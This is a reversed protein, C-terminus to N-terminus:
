EPIGDDGFWEVPLFAFDRAGYEPRPLTFRSPTAPSFAPPRTGDSADSSDADANHDSDASDDAGDAEDEDEDTTSDEGGDSTSDVGEDSVNDEEDSDDEEQSYANDDSHDADARPSDPVAVRNVWANDTNPMRHNGGDDSHTAYWNDAPIEIIPQGDSYANPAPPPGADQRALWQSAVTEAELLNDATSSTDSDATTDALWRSALADADIVDETSADSDANTDALWRSALAHADLEDDDTSEGANNVSHQLWAAGVATPSTSASDADADADPAADPDALRRSAVAQASISAQYPAAHSTGATGHAFLWAAAVTAADVAPSPLPQDAAAADNRDALWRSAVDSISLQSDESTTTKTHFSRFHAPFQLTTAPPPTDADASVLSYRATGNPTTPNAVSFEGPLKAERISTNYGSRLRQKAFHRLDLVDAKTLREGWTWKFSMPPMSQLRRLDAEAAEAVQRSLERKESVSLDASDSASASGSTRAEKLIVTEHLIFFGAARRTTTAVENRSLEAMSSAFNKLSRLKGVLDAAIAHNAECRCCDADADADPTSPQFAPIPIIKPVISGTAEMQLQLRYHTLCTELTIATLLQRDAPQRTMMWWSLHYEKVVRGFQEETTGVDLTAIFASDFEVPLDADSVMALSDALSRLIIPVEVIQGVGTAIGIYSMIFMLERQLCRQMWEQHRGDSVTIVALAQRFRSEGYYIVEQVKVHWNKNSGHNTNKFSKDSILALQRWMVVKRDAYAAAGATLPRDPGNCRMGSWYVSKVGNQTQARARLWHVRKFELITAPDADSLDADADPLIHRRVSHWIWSLQLTTSGPTNPRLVATSAKIDEKKLLRFKQLTAEDAHLLVLRARCRSYVQCHFSIRMNLDKVAARGRTRVGKRPAARIVDSYQFSKEAILERLQNLHAKAQTKRLALEIEDYMPGVNGNSPLCLTQREVPINDDASASEEEVEAVNDWDEMTEDQETTDSRTSQFAGAAAQLRALETLLPALAKRLKEMQRQRIDMQKEEIMLAFELWIEIASRPRNVASASQDDTRDAVQAAYIDMAKPDTLRRAEADEIDTKWREVAQPGAAESLETFYQQLNALNESAEIHRRCLVKTIRLMIRWPQRAYTPSIANLESWLPELIEGITVAADPIFSTAYRFFCEDKHAHVHFLGIARDVKLGTPLRNGIREQLHVFYRTTELAKLLAFDVNKQQEGKFLDVLANPAYCGHRACAIGVLGTIDCASSALLANMIARFTNECPAKTLREIAIKLFAFYEERTPAMGGGESLWVDKSPKAQRVHDAKFNGDAVFVRQYVARNLDEKWNDPLNIGPQPCAPCYNALEGPGVNMPDKGNHGYGAWKLKKMWRWLRSMRRFENYLDVVDAPAMPMTLRRLLQYFQYASAKLELNCLRFYDLAQASFLTRIRHFSAPLLRCAVLDVPLQDPGRCRCSVMALHHIGNTHVVRVYSNNFADATPIQSYNSGSQEGGLPNTFPVDAAAPVTSDDAETFVASEEIPEDDLATEQQQHLDDLYKQFIEDEMAEAAQTPVSFEDNAADGM